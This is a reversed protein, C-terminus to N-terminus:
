ALDFKEHHLQPDSKVLVPRRLVEELEELYKNQHSKLVKGVDPHVRLMVDKGEVSKAMKRAETLIENVVTATRKNSFTECSTPERRRGIVQRGRRPLLHWREEADSVTGCLRCVHRKDRTTRWGARHPCQLALFEWLAGLTCPATGTAISGAAGAPTVAAAPQKEGDGGRPPQAQKDGCAAILVLAWVARAAHASM